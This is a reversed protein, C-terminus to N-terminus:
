PAATTTIAKTMSFIRFITDRQMPKKAEADAYGAANFHVIKGRRAVLSVAGVLEGSELKRAVLDDIRKLRKSSVGVLEPKALRVKEAILDLTFVTMMVFLVFRGVSLRLRSNKKM